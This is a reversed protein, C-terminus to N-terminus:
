VSLRTSRQLLRVGLERELLRMKQSLASASVDLEAAARTFSGYRAILAFVHLSSTFHDM